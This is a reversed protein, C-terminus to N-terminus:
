ARTDEGARSVTVERYLELYQAVMHEASYREQILSRSAQGCQKRREPDRLLALMAAALAPADEVTVLTGTGAQILKPVEGVDTAVVPLGAAMGELLAVPMGEARSSSVLLDLERYFGPMDEQRGALQVAHYLGLTAILRELTARELGEGAVVFTARPLEQLVEAAARLFLDVGKEPSLRAVLGVRLPGDKPLSRTVAFRRLDVGNAILRVRGAPVGSGILRDRVAASVAVVGAFQRLVRRDLAGYLRVATTEDIWNHCTSVIPTGTGRMALYGYVDAKYGHAHVVDAELRRALERIGRPVSLDIQGRCAVPFADVGERAAAAYLDHNPQADSTFLGLSSRHAEGGSGGDGCGGDGSEGHRENLARSLNLIVAEAGYMGGSSILHLVRM